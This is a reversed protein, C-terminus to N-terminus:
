AKAAQKVCEVIREIKDQSLLPHVPLSVVTDAARESNPCLGKKYGYKEVYYPQLYVPRPYHVSAEVGLRRLREIFRDRPGIKSEEVRITYQHYVHRGWGKEVPTIVGDVRALGENLMRANERRRRIFEELRALQPLGIAAQIETMRYNLGIGVHNYRSSQGHNRLLRLREAFGEDQTAVFGGEATHLNKTAYTSFCGALGFSGVMKSGYTSGIAQAADEVVALGRRRAISIVGDMPASQGYLHVPEVAVCEDDVVGDISAPDVNYTDLDIDAFVPQGGALIVTNASAAFTFASVIVKKNKVGLAEFAVHLAATGSNVCVVHKVGLYDALRGEFEEVLRGSVLSGSRLVSTVGQVIEDDIYPDAIKINEM